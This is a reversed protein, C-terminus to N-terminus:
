SNNLKSIPLIKTGCKHGINAIKIMKGNLIKLIDGQRNGTYLEGNFVALGEPADIEGEFLKEAGNLRDNPAMHGTLEM